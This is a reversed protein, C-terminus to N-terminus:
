EHYSGADTQSGAETQSGAQRADATYLCCHLDVSGGHGFQLGHIGVRERDCASGALSGLAPGDLQSMGLSQRM